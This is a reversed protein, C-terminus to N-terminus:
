HVLEKVYRPTIKQMKGATRACRTGTFSCMYVHSLPLIRHHYSTDHKTTFHQIFDTLCLCVSAGGKGTGKQRRDEEVARGRQQEGVNVYM